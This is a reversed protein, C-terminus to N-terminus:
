KKMPCDSHNICGGSKAPVIGCKWCKAKESYKELQEKNWNYLKQLAGQKQQEQNEEWVKFREFLVKYDGVQEIDFLYDIFDKLEEAEAFYSNKVERPQSAM